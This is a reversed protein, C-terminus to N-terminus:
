MQESFQQASMPPEVDITTRDVSEHPIQSQTRGSEVNETGCDAIEIGIDLAEVFPEDLCSARPPEVDTANLSLSYDEPQHEYLPLPSQVDPMSVLDDPLNALPVPEQIGQNDWLASDHVDTWLATGYNVVPELVESFESIWKSIRSNTSDFELVVAKLTKLYSRLDGSKLRSVAFHLSEASAGKSEYEDQAGVLIHNMRMIVYNQKVFELHEADAGFRTDRACITQFQTELVTVNLVDGVKQLLIEACKQNRCRATSNTTGMTKVAIIILVAHQALCVNNASVNVNQACISKFYLNEKGSLHRQGIFTALEWEQITQVIQAATLNMTVGFPNCAIHRRDMANFQRIFANISARSNSHSNTTDNAAEAVAM